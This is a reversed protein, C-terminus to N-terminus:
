KPENLAFLLTMFVRRSTRSFCRELSYLMLIFFPTLGALQLSKIKIPEGNMASSLFYQIFLYIFIAWVAAIIWRSINAKSELVTQM